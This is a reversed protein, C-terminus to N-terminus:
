KSTGICANVTDQFLLAYSCIFFLEEYDINVCYLFIVTLLGKKARINLSIKGYFMITLILTSKAFAQLFTNTLRNTREWKHHQVHM